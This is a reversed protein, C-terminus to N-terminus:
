ECFSIADEMVRLLKPQDEPDAESLLSYCKVPISEPKAYEEEILEFLSTVPVKLARSIRWITDLTANKEGREVQGIYTNHLGAKEALKAQTLGRAKRYYYVRKGVLKVIESMMIGPRM